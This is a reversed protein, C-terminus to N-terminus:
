EGIRKHVYKRVGQVGQKKITSIIKKEEKTFHMEEKSLDAEFLKQIIENDLIDQFHRMLLAPDEEYDFYYNAAGMMKEYVWHLMAMEEREALPYRHFLDWDARIVLTEWEWFGPKYTRMASEHNLCYHYWRERVCRILKCHPYYAALFMADEGMKVDLPFRINYKKLIDAKYLKNVSFNIYQLGTFQSPLSFFMKENYLFDEMPYEMESLGCLAMECGKAARYLGELFFGEVYDDSDIFSLYEGESHDIGYNRASAVGGNEKVLFRVRSDREEYEQRIADYDSGSGDDVVLLELEKLSQKLISDLCRRLLLFPTKYVPVIVSILPTM